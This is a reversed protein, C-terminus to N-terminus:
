DCISRIRHALKGFDQELARDRVSWKKLKGDSSCTFLWEGDKTVLMSQIGYAFGKHILAFDHIITGDTLDILKLNCEGDYVFLSEDGPALQIGAVSYHCIKSYDKVVIQNPISIKTVRKDEGGTVLFNNDRSVAMSIIPDSHIKGYNKIVKQSDICIQHLSGNSIGVFAHKRDFTTVVSGIRSKFTYEKVLEYDAVRFQKLNKQCSVFLYQSDSTTAM